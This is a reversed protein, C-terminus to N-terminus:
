ETKAVKKIIRTKTTKIAKSESGAPKAVESKAKQAAAVKAPRAAKQAAPAPVTKEAMPTQINEAKLHDPMSYFYKAKNGDMFKILFARGRSGIVTAFRGQYRPHPMGSHVSPNIRIRVGDGISFKQLADAISFRGGKLKHRTRARFGHSHKM